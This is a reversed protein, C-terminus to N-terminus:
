ASISATIPTRPPPGVASRGPGLTASISRRTAARNPFGNPSIHLEPEDASYRATSSSSRGGPESTMVEGRVKEVSMAGMRRAPKIGAKTSVSSSVKLMSTAWISAMIVGSVEAM